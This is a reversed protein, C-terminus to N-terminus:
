PLLDGFDGAPRGSPTVISVTYSRESRIWRAMALRLYARQELFADDDRQDADHEQQMHAAGQHGDDHQRDAHQDGEDGHAQQAHVGVDHAQAADGDGDAGHDIGGDDHDLVRVLMELPQLGFAVRAAVSAMMAAQLSTPGASNKESSIMVTENRGTNVSSACSPRSNEGSAKVLVKAMAPAASSDTVSTGTSIISNM